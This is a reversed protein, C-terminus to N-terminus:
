AVAVLRPAPAQRAPVIVEDEDAVRMPTIAIVRSDAVVARTQGPAAVWGSACRYAARTSRVNDYGVYDILAWGQDSTTHM